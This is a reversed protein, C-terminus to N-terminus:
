QLQKSVPAAAPVADDDDDEDEDDEESAEAPLTGDRVLQARVAGFLDGIGKFITLTINPHISLYNVLYKGEVDVAIFGLGALVKTDNARGLAELATRFHGQAVRVNRELETEDIPEESM